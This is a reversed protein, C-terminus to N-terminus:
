KNYVIVRGDERIGVMHEMVPNIKISGLMSDIMESQALIMPDVVPVRESESMLFDTYKEKLLENLLRLEAHSFTKVDRRINVFTVKEQIELEIENVEPNLKELYQYALLSDLLLDKCQQIESEDLIKNITYNLYVKEDEPEFSIISIEPYCILISTLLNICDMNPKKNQELKKIRM